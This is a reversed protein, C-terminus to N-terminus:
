LFFTKKRVEEKTLYDVSGEPLGDLGGNEPAFVTINEQEFLHEVGLTQLYKLSLIALHLRLHLLHVPRYKKKQNVANNNKFNFNPLLSMPKVGSTSNKEPIPNSM